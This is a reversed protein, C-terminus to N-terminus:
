QRLPGGRRRPYGLLRLDGEAAPCRVLAHGDLDDHERIVGSIIEAGVVLTGVLASREFEKPMARRSGLRQKWHRGETLDDITGDPKIIMAGSDGASAGVIRGDNTVVVIVCTTEGAARDSQVIADAHVLLEALWSPDTFKTPAYDIAEAVIKLALDAAEAGGRMGGAGDAVVVVLGGPGQHVSLRVESIRRFSATKTTIKFPM